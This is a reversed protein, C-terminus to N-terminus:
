AVAGAPTRRSAVRAGRIVDMLEAPDARPTVGRWAVHGDPRVLVLRAAYLAAADPDNVRIVTLPIGAVDAAATLEAAEPADAGFRLLM